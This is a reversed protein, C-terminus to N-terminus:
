EVTWSPIYQSGSEVYVLCPRGSKKTGGAMAAAQLAPLVSGREESLEYKRMCVRLLSVTGNEFFVSAAGEPRIIKMGNVYYDFKVQYGGSETRKLGSFSLIEDGERGSRMKALIAYASEIMEDTGYVLKGDTFDSDGSVAYSLVGDEQVKLIGDTGVFVMTGNRETYSAGELINLGFLQEIQRRISEFSISNESNLLYYEPNDVILAYPETQECGRRAEFAFYAGNPLFESILQTLSSEQVATSSKFIGEEGSYWVWVNDLADVSLMFRDAARENRNLMSMGLWKVLLAVPLETAYEMYVSRRSLANIWERESCKEPLGSSGLAEGIINSIKKYTENLTQSYQAGFRMGNDNTIVIACPSAAAASASGEAPRGGSSEASSGEGAIIGRFYSLAPVSDVLRAFVDTKAALFVASIALLIILATKLRERRIKKSM